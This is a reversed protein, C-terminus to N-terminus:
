FRLNKGMNNKLLCLPNKYENEVAFQVFHFRRRRDPMSRISSHVPRSLYLVPVPCTGSLYGKVAWKLRPGRGGPAAPAGYHCPQIFGLYSPHGAPIYFGGGLAASRARPAPGHGGRAAGARWAM